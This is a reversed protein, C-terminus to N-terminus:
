QLRDAADRRDVSTAPDARLAEHRAHLQLQLRVQPVVDSEVSREPRHQRQGRGSLRLREARASDVWAEPQADLAVDLEQVEGLAATEEVDADRRRAELQEEPDVELHAAEREGRVAARSDDAARM